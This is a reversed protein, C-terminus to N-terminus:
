AISTSCSWPAAPAIANSTPLRAISSASSAAGTRFAWCSTPIPPPRFNRSRRGADPGTAGEAPSDDGQHRQVGGAAPIGPRIVAATRDKRGSAASKPRKGARSATARTKKTM